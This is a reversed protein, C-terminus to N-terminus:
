AAVASLHSCECWAADHRLAVGSLGRTMVARTLGCRWDAWERWAVATGDSFMIEGDLRPSTAAFSQLLRTVADAHAADDVGIWLDFDSEQRLHDLGSLAQWGYSGFARATARCKRLGALLDRVARRASGPLLGQVQALQPFEAFYLLAERPVQLALRRRSWRTPASLGLAIPDTIAADAPQRTVVLPLRHAAWHALCNQAQADWPRALIASWGVDSLYVLQHRHLVIM